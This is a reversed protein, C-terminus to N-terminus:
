IDEPFGLEKMVSKGWEEDDVVAKGNVTTRAISDMENMLKEIKDYEAKNKELDEAVEKLKNLDPEGGETKESLKQMSEMFPKMAVLVQKMADKWQDVSWDAGETKAKAVIEELSLAKEVQEEAAPQAADGEAKQKCSTLGIGMILAFMGILLKKM